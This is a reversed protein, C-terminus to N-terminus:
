NVLYRKFNDIILKKSCIAFPMISYLYDFKIPFIPNPYTQIDNMTIKSTTPLPKANVNGNRKDSFLTYYDAAKKSTAINEVWIVKRSYSHALAM